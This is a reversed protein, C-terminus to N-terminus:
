KRIVKGENEKLTRKCIFPGPESQRRSTLCIQSTNKDSQCIINLVVHDRGKGGSCNTM